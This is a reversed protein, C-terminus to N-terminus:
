IYVTFRLNKLKAGSKNLMIIHILKLISSCLCIGRYNDSLIMSARGDKPISVITSLTICEAMHRLSFSIFDSLLRHLIISSYILHDSELGQDGDRKGIKLHSIANEIDDTTVKDCVAVNNHLRQQVCAKIINM